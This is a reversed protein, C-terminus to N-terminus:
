TIALLAKEITEINSSLDLPESLKTALPKRFSSSKQFNPPSDKTRKEKQVSFAQPLLKASQILFPAIQENGELFLVISGEEEEIWQIWKLSEKSLSGNVIHVPFVSMIRYLFQGLKGPFRKVEKAFFIPQYSYILAAFISLTRKKAILFARRQVEEIDIAFILKTLILAFFRMLHNSLSYVFYLWSTFTLLALILFGTQASLKLIYGNFALTAAALLLFVFGIFNGAAVISGREKTPSIIQIYADLPVIFLGGHFGVSFIMLTVFPISSPYLYIGFYSLATGLGGWIAISIEVSKGALFSYLMAGIGIGLAAALYIYGAEAETIGMAEIGLPIMNLQTYLATFMFYSTYIISLFLHPYKLTDKLSNIVEPIFNLHIKRNPDQRPTKKIQIGFYLAFCSIILCVYTMELFNIETDIAIKSILFTGILIALYNFLTMLGNAKSIEEEKVIEPIISLKLPVFFSAHLAIFFLASYTAIINKYGIAIAGCITALVQGVLSWGIFKSKNWRDALQGALMSFLIFPAVFVAATTALVINSFESGFMKILTLVVILRFMADNLTVLFQSINLAQFPSFFNWLFIKQFVTSSSKKEKEEIVEDRDMNAPRFM